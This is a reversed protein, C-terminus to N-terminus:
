RPMSCMGDYEGCPRPRLAALPEISGQLAPEEVLEMPGTDGRHGGGIGVEALAEQGVVVVLERPRRGVGGASEDREVADVEVADEAMFLLAGHPLVVDDHELLHGQLERLLRPAAAAGAHPDDHPAMETPMMGHPVAGPTETVVVTLAPGQRHGGGGRRGRGQARRPRFVRPRMQGLIWSRGRAM